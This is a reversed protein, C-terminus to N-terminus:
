VLCALLSQKKAGMEQFSQEKEDQFNGIARQV